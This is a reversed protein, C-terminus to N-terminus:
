SYFIPWVCDAFVDCFPLVFMVLEEWSASGDVVHSWGEGVFLFYASEKKKFAFSDALWDVEGVVAGSGYVSVDGVESM